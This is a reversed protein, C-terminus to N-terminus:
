WCTTCLKSDTFFSFSFFFISYRVLFISHRLFLFFFSPLFFFFSYRINFSPAGCARYRERRLRKNARLAGEKSMRHEKNKIRYEKKTGAQGFSVDQRDGGEKKVSDCSFKEQFGKM